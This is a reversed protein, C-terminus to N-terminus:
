AVDILEALTLPETSALVDVTLDANRLLTVGATNRYLRGCVVRVAGVNILLQACFVCPSLTTYVTAGNIGVGNCAAFAVANAEAHVSTSCPEAGAPREDSTLGDEHVCHTMGRPSGNYGTSLVRGNLAIVCGVQARSCTGRQAMVYAVTLLTTDM